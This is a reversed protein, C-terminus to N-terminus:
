DRLATEGKKEASEGGEAMTAFAINGYGASACSFMVKKIIRFQVQRDAQINVDGKFAGTDNAANHLDEFQKKMERLKEELAPINLYDERALDEVRGIPNGSVIVTEQSVMVVPALQLEDTNAAEPLQIDKSMSLIEGTASFNAILFLVLIVFMDVLPTVNLDSFVSKKGLAAHHGFIKSHMLRKGFRKGPTIIAM